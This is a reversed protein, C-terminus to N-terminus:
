AGILAKLEAAAREFEAIAQKAMSIPDSLTSTRAMTEIKKAIDSLAMAGLNASTSKLSHAPAVMGAVDGQQSSQALIRLNKPTDELYV